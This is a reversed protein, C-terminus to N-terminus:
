SHEEAMLEMIRVLDDDSYFEIDIRGRGSQKRNISVKTGLATRLKGEFSLIIEPKPTTKQSKHNAAAKNQRDDTLRRVLEETQRVSLSDRVIEKFVPVIQNEPLALLARAHGTSLQNEKVASKIEAPLKLLRILNAVATRSKGVKEAIQEQTLNYKGALLAYGEATEIPNLDERQINEVLALELMELDTEVGIVYVPVTTLGAAAAARLRREGAVLEYCGNGSDRVTLPQLVGNVKVSQILEALGEDSFKERPQHPNVAISDVPVADNLYRTGDGLDHASLLAKLGKGLRKESM